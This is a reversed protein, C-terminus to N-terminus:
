SKKKRRRVGGALKRYTLSSTVVLRANKIAFRFNRERSAKRSVYRVNALIREIRVYGKPLKRYTSLRIRKRALLNKSHWALTQVENVKTQQLAKNASSIGGAHERYVYLAEDINALEGLVSLRLWFEYDESPWFQQKYPGAKTAADKRFMVSGHAFPSRVLLEQRLESNNLLLSHEHVIKSKADMVKMSSGVLVVKPKDNLLSVQKEFRTPESRDDADQRAIYKGKATKIGRNLSAVLGKNPQTIIKIRADKYSKLIKSTGDTSGDDIIILEFDSYTQALVSDIAERLYSAGNYVSM